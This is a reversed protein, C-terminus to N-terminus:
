AGFFKKLKLLAYSVSIKTKLEKDKLIKNLFKSYDDQKLEYIKAKLFKLFDYSDDTENTLNKFDEFTKEVPNKEEEPEKEITPDEKKDTAIDSKEETPSDAVPKNQETSADAQNSSPEPGFGGSDEKPFKEESSLDLSQTSNDEPPQEEITKAEFINNKKALMKYVRLKNNMNTILLM